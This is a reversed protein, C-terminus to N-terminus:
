VKVGDSSDGVEFLEGVDSDGESLSDSEDSLSLAENESSDSARDAALASSLNFGTPEKRAEAAPDLHQTIDAMSKTLEAARTERKM